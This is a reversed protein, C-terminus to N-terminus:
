SAPLCVSVQCERGDVRSEPNGILEGTSKQLPCMNFTIDDIAANRSHEAARACFIVTVDGTLPEVTALGKLTVAVQENGPVVAM